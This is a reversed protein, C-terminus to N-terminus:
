FPGNKKSITARRALESLIAYGLMGTWMALCTLFVHEM